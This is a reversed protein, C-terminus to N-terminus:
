RANNETERAATLNLVKLGETFYTAVSAADATPATEMVPMLVPLSSTRTIATSSASYSTVMSAYNLNLLATAYPLAVAEACSSSELPTFLAELSPDSVTDSHLVALNGNDPMAVHVTYMAVGDSSTYRRKLHSVKDAKYLTVFPALDATYLHSAAHMFGDWEFTTTTAVDTGTPTDETSDETADADTPFRGAHLEHVYNWWFSPPLDGTPTVASETEHWALSDLEMDMVSRTSCYKGPSEANAYTDAKAGNGDDSATTGNFFYQHSALTLGLYTSVWEGSSVGNLSLHTRKFFTIKNSTSQLM